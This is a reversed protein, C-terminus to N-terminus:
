KSRSWTRFFFAPDQRLRCELDTAVEPTSGKPVSFFLTIPQTKDIATRLADARAIAKKRKGSGCEYVRKSM